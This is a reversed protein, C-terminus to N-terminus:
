RTIATPIQIVNQTATRPFNPSSQTQSSRMYTWSQTQGKIEAKKMRMNPSLDNQRTHKLVSLDVNALLFNFCWSPFTLTAWRSVSIKKNESSTIICLLPAFFPVLPASTRCFLFQRLNCSNHILEQVVNCYQQPLAAVTRSCKAFPTDSTACNEM